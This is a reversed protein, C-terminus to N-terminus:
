GCDSERGFFHVKHDVINLHHTQQLQCFAEVRFAKPVKAELAVVDNHQMM